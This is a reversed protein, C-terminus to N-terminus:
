CDRQKGSTKSAEFENIIKGIIGYFDKHTWQNQRDRGKQALEQRLAENGWIKKIAAAIEKPNKPDFLLAANGAQEKPGRLNSYLVPCSMYWAEYVPIFTPGILVPMVMAEAMKYLASIEDGDVFGLSKVNEQLGEKVVLEHIRKFEGWADLAGGTFVIPVSLGSKKLIALAEILRYQNKHPWFQAPYYLFKEPLSYKERVSKKFDDSIDRKLYTPPVFPVVQLKKPDAGYERSIDERSIESDVLVKFAKKIINKNLYERKEYQGNESLEPFEFRHLRHEIDHIPVVGPIDTLFSLESGGHYFMLDINHGAFKAAKRKASQKTLFLELRYLKFKRTFELVKLNFQRRFSYDPAQNQTATKVDDSKKTITAIDIIEWNPLKFLHYPFDPSINFVTIKHNEKQNKLADLMNLAYQYAGGSKTMCEFYFGLNM